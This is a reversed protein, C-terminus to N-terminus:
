VNKKEEMIYEKFQKKREELTESGTRFICTSCDTCRNLDQIGGELCGDIMSEELIDPASLDRTSIDNKLEESIKPIKYKM